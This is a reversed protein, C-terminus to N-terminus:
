GSEPRICQFLQPATERVAVLMGLTEGVHVVIAIHQDLASESIRNHVNLAQGHSKRRQIDQETLQAAVTRRARHDLAPAAQHPAMHPSCDAFSVFLLTYFATQWHREFHHM